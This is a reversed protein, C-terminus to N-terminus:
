KRGGMAKCVEKAARGVDRATADSPRGAEIGREFAACMNRFRAVATQAATRPKNHGTYAFDCPPTKPVPM